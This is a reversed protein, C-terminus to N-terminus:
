IKDLSVTGVKLTACLSNMSASHHGDDGTVLLCCPIKGNKACHTLAITPVKDNVADNIGVGAAALLDAYTEAAEYVREDCDIIEFSSDKIKEATVKDFKKLQKFVERSVGIRKVKSIEFVHNSLNNGALGLKICAELDFVYDLGVYSNTV